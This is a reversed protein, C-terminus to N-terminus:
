RPVPKEPLRINCDMKLKTVLARLALYSTSPPDDIVQGPVVPYQMPVHCGPGLTRVPGPGLVKTSQILQPIRMNMTYTVTLWYGTLPASGVSIPEFLPGLPTLILAGNDYMAHTSNDLSVLNAGSNLNARVEQFLKNTNDIGLFMEVMRWFDHGRCSPRNAAAFPIIHAAEIAFGGDANRGTIVCQFDDRRYCRTPARHDRKIISEAPDNTKDTSDSTDRPTSVAKSKGITAHQSRAIGTSDSLNNIVTDSVVAAVTSAEGLNSLTYRSMTDAHVTGDQGASAPRRDMNSSGTRMMPFNYLASRIIRIKLIWEDLINEREQPNQPPTSALQDQLDITFYRSGHNLIERQEQTAKKYLIDLLCKRPENM